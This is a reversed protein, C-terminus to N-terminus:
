EKYLVAILRGLREGTATLLDECNAMSEELTMPRPCISLMADIGLAYLAEHGDGLTGAVAVVPIGLRRAIRAVGLPTKGGATQGDIRGEGTIVLAAGDMRQELRCADAVVDVGPMLRARCCAMLGAGLGGAAGGSPAELVAVGLDREVVEGFRRLAADLEAVAAEDAGKQPGFVRSAGMPGCLPNTVDCAVAFSAEDLAPNRGQADIRELRALAAGGPPLDRGQADLLRYGLAQAMGAGGDNTASGGIGMVFRRLGRALADLILDGTGRTSTVRPNRQQAPVLMLGSAAAMEIVATRGDGLVGYEARVPTGLPGSVTATVRRGGTAAVLADVTGEGGDAMPILECEAGPLVRRLGEALAAAARGASASEKFSDPAIIIRM